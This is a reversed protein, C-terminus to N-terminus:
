LRGVIVRTNCLRDHYGAREPTVLIPVFWILSLWFVLLPAVEEPVLSTYLPLSPLSYALFRELADRRTLSFGDTRIVYLSLLRKGPTAQWHSATFYTYYALSAMFTGLIAVPNGKFLSAIALSPIVLILTDILNAFLRELRGAYTISRKM